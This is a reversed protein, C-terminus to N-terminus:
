GTSRGVMASSTDSVSVFVIDSGAGAEEPTDAIPTDLGETKSRTRNWVTPRHGAALLNEVMGRGMIGLGIFGLRTMVAVM